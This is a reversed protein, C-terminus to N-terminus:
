SQITSSRVCIEPDVDILTSSKSRPEGPLGVDDIRRNDPKVSSLFIGFTKRRAERKRHYSQKFSKKFFFYIFLGFPQADADAHV